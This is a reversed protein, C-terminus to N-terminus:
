VFAAGPILNKNAHCIDSVHLAKKGPFQMVLLKISGNGTAVLLSEKDVALITGPKATTKMTANDGLEACWIRVTQDLFSTFAIPWSNYARICRDIELASAQWNIKAQQKELKHAYTANAETQQQRNLRGAELKTLWDGCTSQALEALRDHLNEATDKPHIPCPYVSLIDGTDLGADMQMITIGSETDGALIAHQIPAAGRWRPLISAHINICGLKPISLVEPPLILGYAMVIMLDADIAKLQAQIEPKRLSKPQLIPINHEQACIKVPSPTLKLGRGQPRDPQTLCAVIPYNAKILAALVGAAIEPTGAFIIKKV